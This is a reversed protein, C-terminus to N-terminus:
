ADAIQDIMKRVMTVPNHWTGVWERGRSGFEERLPRSEIFPILQDAIRGKSINIFPHKKLVVEFDPPIEAATPIGMALSELGNIGYSLEGISDVFIHCSKKLKLADQHPLNEILVIEIPYQKGIQTLEDLIVDTGKAARNTPAHGIRVPRDPVPGPEPFAPLEFPFYIFTLAPDLLTHDFEVTFRFDALGDVAPIIGRTRLDSGCYCVAIKMGKDKLERIIKGNRLFGAGGDLYLLDFQEIRIAELITRIRPEWLRDRVDTLVSTLGSPNWVPPGASGDRRQNTVTRSKSGIWSKFLGVAGSGVYPLSLCVDEEATNQSTRYLTMLMSDHGLAREARVFTGPVRAYNEVAFHLIKM